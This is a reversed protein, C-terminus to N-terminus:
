KEMVGHPRPQHTLPRIGSFGGDPQVPHELERRIGTDLPFRGNTEIPYIKEQVVRMDVNISRAVFDPAKRVPDCRQAKAHTRHYRGHIGVHQATACHAVGVIAPAEHLGHPSRAPISGHQIRM